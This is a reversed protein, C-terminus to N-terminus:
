AACLDDLEVNIGKINAIYVDLQSREETTLFERGEAEVLGLLSNAVMTADAKKAKLREVAGAVRAPDGGKSKPTPAAPAGSAKSAPAPAAGLFKAVELNARAAIATWNSIVMDLTAQVDERSANGAGERDSTSMARHIANLLVPGRSASHGNVQVEACAGALSITRQSSPDAVAHACSAKHWVDGANNKMREISIRAPQGTLIEAVVAHGSEHISSVRLSDAEKSNLTIM